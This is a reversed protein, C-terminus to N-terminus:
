SIVHRGFDCCGIEFAVAGEHDTFHLQVYQFLKELDPPTSFGRHNCIDTRLHISWQKKHIDIGIYLKPIATTQAQNMKSNKTVEIVAKVYISQTRRASTCFEVATRRTFKLLLSPMQAEIERGFAWFTPSLKISAYGSV